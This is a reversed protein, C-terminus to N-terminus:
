GRAPVRGLVSVRDPLTFCTRAAPAIGFRAVAGEM